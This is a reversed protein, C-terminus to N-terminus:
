SVKWSAPFPVWYNLLVQLGGTPLCLGEEDVRKNGQLHLTALPMPLIIKTGKLPHMIKCGPYVEIPFVWRPKRIGVQLSWPGCLPFARNINWSPLCLKYDCGVRWGATSVKLGKRQISSCWWEPPFQTCPGPPLNLLLLQSVASPIRQPM